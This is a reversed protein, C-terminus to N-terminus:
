IKKYRGDIKVRDTRLSPHKGFNPNKKKKSLRSKGKNAM